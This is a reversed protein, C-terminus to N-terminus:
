GAWHGRLWLKTSVVRWLLFEAPASGNSRDFLSAVRSRDFWREEYENANRLLSDRHRDAFRWTIGPDSRFGVKDKRTRIADPLVGNLGERLVHKTEARHIKYDGPLRFAFEVLRHDLFPV